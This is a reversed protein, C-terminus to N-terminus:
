HHVAVVFEIVLQGGLADRLVAVLYLTAQVAFQLFVIEAHQTQLVADVHLHMAVHHADGDRITQRAACLYALQRVDRASVVTAIAMEARALVNLEVPELQFVRRLDQGIQSRDLHM